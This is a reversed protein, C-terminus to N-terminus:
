ELNITLVPGRKGGNMSLVLESPTTPHLRDQQIIGTLWVKDPRFAVAKQRSAPSTLAAFHIGILRGETNLLPAGSDGARTPLDSFVMLGGAALKKVSLIRGGLCERSISAHTKDGVKLESNGVAVAATQRKVGEPEAWAFVEEVRADVHLIALDRHTEPDTIQAVARPLAIRATQGDSFVIYTVGPDVCHAATLFYGDAEIAVAQGCGLSRNTESHFEVSATLGDFSAAEATMGRVLMATRHEIFTSLPQSGVTTSRYAEFSGSREHDSPSRSKSSACGVLMLAAILQFADLGRMVCIQIGMAWFGGM